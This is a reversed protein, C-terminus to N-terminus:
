STGSFCRASAASCRTPPPQARARTNVPPTLRGTLPTCVECEECQNRLQSPRVCDTGFPRARQFVFKTRKGCTPPRHSRSLPWRPVRNRAWLCGPSLVHPVSRYRARPLLSFPVLGPASRPHLIARLWNPSTVSFSSCGVPHTCFCLVQSTRRRSLKDESQSAATCSTRM